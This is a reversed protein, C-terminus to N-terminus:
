LRIDVLQRTYKHQLLFATTYTTKKQLCYVAYAIRMLSQLESTHEESRVLGRGGTRRRDPRPSLARPVDCAGVGLRSSSGDYRLPAVYASQGRGCGRVGM